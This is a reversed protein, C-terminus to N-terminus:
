PRLQWFHEPPRVTHCDACEGDPEHTEQDQHCALCVPRSQAIAEVSPERHCGAGSCTLHVDLDHAGEPAVAHCDACGVSGTHHEEHCSSCSAAPSLTPMAQHCTSCSEDVHPGHRFSLSRERPADWVELEFLQTTPSIGPTEHCYECSRGQEPGHHCALCEAQSLSSVTTRESALHCESCGLSAHAGHGPVTEHCVSCDIQGHADHAFSEPRTSRRMEDPLFRPREQGSTISLEESPASVVDGPTSGPGSEREPTGDGSCGVALVFAGLVGFRRRM